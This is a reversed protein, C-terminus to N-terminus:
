AVEIQHTPLGLRLGRLRYITFLPPSGSPTLQNLRQALRRALVRVRELEDSIELRSMNATLRFENAYVAQAVDTLSCIEGLRSWLYAILRYELPSLAGSIEQGYYSVQHHATDVHISAPQTTGPHEIQQIYHALLPSFVTFRQGDDSRILGKLLLEPPLPSLLHGHALLRLADQEDGDLQQWIKACELRLEPLAALEALSAEAIRAYSTLTLYVLSRILAPHGGSLEQALKQAEGSLLSKHRRAIREVEDATDAQNLPTLGLKHLTLLEVFPEIADWDDERIAVLPRRGFTIFMLRYKHRDRLGRLNRLVGTDLAAFLPDFEDFILALPGLACLSALVEGVQRLALAYDGQANLTREHAAHIQEALTVDSSPYVRLADLLGELLGWGDWSALMNADLTICSVLTANSGLYHRQVEPRQIQTILNTKGVGSMGVISSCEGAGLAELLPAVIESRYSLPRPTIM